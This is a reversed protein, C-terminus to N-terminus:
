HSRLLNSPGQLAELGKNREECGGVPAVVKITLRPSKCVGNSIVISITPTTIRVAAPQDMFRASPTGIGIHDALSHYVTPQPRTGLLFPAPAHYTPEAPSESYGLRAAGVQVLPWACRTRKA